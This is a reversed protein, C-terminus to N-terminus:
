FVKLRSADYHAVLGTTNVGDLGNQWKRRLYSEISSRSSVDLLKDYILIKQSAATCINIAQKVAGISWPKGAGLNLNNSGGDATEVDDCIVM